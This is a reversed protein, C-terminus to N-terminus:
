RGKLVEAIKRLLIEATYPKPLFPLGEKKIHELNDQDDTYGSVLIVDLSPKSRRLLLALDTGRGDPLILDSLLLDFSGKERAFVFDADFISRCAHVVYNNDTLLDRTLNMLDRDDEALLIMEGNGRLQDLRAPSSEAQVPQTDFKFAPLFIKFTAGRGNSSKVNVHGDHDKVIGYVVSLGLGTGRGLEKTTFFPEFIHPLVDKDIGAGTDSVSLCVYRGPKTDGSHSSREKKLVVNKPKITLMGGGHMADRANLVLNILIQDISATDAYVTWLAPDFQYNITIDEGILRDLMKLNDKINQNLNLPAKFQPQRRGFMLLQRTLNASKETAKRINMFTDYVYNDLPFRQSHLDMCTQIITLQNNLEHAMGGALQGIAEMKQAQQLREGAQKRETIDITSDLMCPENNLMVSVASLLGTRIKGPKTRLEYEFDRVEGDAKLIQMMQQRHEPRAWLNLEEPTHDIVDKRRYGTLQEFRENVDIYQGNDLKKITQCISSSKFAKLFRQEAEMKQVQFLQQQTAALEAEALRRERRMVAERLEREVALNLRTLNDKLLYDHAGAKVAKVAVDEGIKGSVIIFPLDLGRDQLLKLADLGSFRPMVYDAIVMDWDQKELAGVMAEPTEVREYLPSYGGQRLEHLLLMADHDSDEVLLVKLPRDM